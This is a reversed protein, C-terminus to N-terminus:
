SRGKGCGACTGVREDNYTGCSCSWGALLRGPWVLLLAAAAHYVVPGCVGLVVALGAIGALLVLVPVCGGGTGHHRDISRDTADEDPRHDRVIRLLRDENGKWPDRGSV